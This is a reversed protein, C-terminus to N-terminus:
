NNLLRAEAQKVGMGLFFRTACLYVLVVVLLISGILWIPVGSVATLISQGGLVTAVGLIALGLVLHVAMMCASLLWKARNELGKGTKNVVAMGGDLAPVIATVIAAGSSSNFNFFTELLAFLVAILVATLVFMIGYRTLLYPLPLDRMGNKRISGPQLWSKM